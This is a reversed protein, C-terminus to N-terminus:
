NPFLLPSPLCLLLLFFSFYFHGLQEHEPLFAFISLLFFHRRRPLFFFLLGATLTPPGARNGPQRSPTKCEVALKLPPLFIESGVKASSALAPLIQCSVHVRCSGLVTKTPKPQTYDHKPLIRTSGGLVNLLHTM